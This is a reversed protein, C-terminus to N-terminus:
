DFNRLRACPITTGGRPRYLVQVCVFTALLKGLNKNKTLAAAKFGRIPAQDGGESMQRQEYGALIM